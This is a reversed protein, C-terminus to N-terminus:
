GSVPRFSVCTPSPVEIEFGDPEPWGDEDRLRFRVLTGPEYNGPNQNAAILYQATPDLSYNRPIHGLSSQTGLFKARGTEQDFDFVAISDHGRNSVYVTKGNPHVAIESTASEQDGEEDPLTSLEGTYQMRGTEGDFDFICLTSTLDGCAFLYRGSPHHAHHRPGTGLPMSAIHSAVPSLTGDDPDTPYAFIQDRGLDSITVFRGHSAPIVQHPRAGAQMPHPGAGKHLVVTDVDGVNGDADLPFAVIHGSNYNTAYAHKGSPHISVHTPSNGGSSVRSMLTLSGTKEDIRYAALAGVTLDTADFARELAYLVPLRPHVTLWTPSLLGSTVGLREIQGTTSDFSFLYIGDSPAGDGGVGVYEPTFTGIYMYFRGQAM